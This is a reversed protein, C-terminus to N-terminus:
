AGPRNKAEAIYRDMDARDVLVRRRIRVSPLERRFLLDRLMWYSIGLYDAAEQQSLLRPRVPDPAANPTERNM